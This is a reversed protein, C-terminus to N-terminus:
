RLIHDAAAATIYGEGTEATVYSCLRRINTILLGSSHRLVLCLCCAAAMQYSFHLWLNGTNTIQDDSCRLAPFSGEGLKVTGPSPM